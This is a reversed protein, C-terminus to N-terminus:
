LNELADNICGFRFVLSQAINNTGPAEGPVTPSDIAYADKYYYLLRFVSDAATFSNTLDATFSTSSPTTKVTVVEATTGTTLLLAYDGVALSIDADIEILVDSGAAETNTMTTEDSSTDEVIALDGKVTYGNAFSTADRFDKLLDLKRGMFQRQTESVGIASPHGLQMAGTVTIDYWGSPAKEQPSAAEAWGNRKFEPWDADLKLTEPGHLYDGLRLTKWYAIRDAM